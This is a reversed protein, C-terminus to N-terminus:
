PAPVDEGTLKSMVARLHNHGPDAILAQQWVYRAKDQQGAKWLVEGYHSAIEADGSNHWARGLMQLAQTSKGRRYLLWGMSDQIAPNDPSAALATRVMQEARGLQQKHDALTFGLANLLQPDEPRRKLAAEFAGIAERTRGGTELVTARTYQLEADDPYQKDAQDLTSLASTLDGAGALLTARTSAVEVLSQPNQEGFEDILAIASSVDGHRIMLRAASTRASLGLGTDGLLRYSQVASADDGRRAALEAFYLLAIATNNGGSALAGIHREAGDLDGNRLAMTILRQRAGVNTDPALLLEQLEQEADAQRDAADLLDAVLFVDEGALTRRDLQRAGAVAAEHDGLVSQARLVISRAEELSADIGLAREAASRAVQMNQAAFALQAQALLVEATPDPGVLVDNFVRYLATAEAEEGLTAAIALPSQGGAAGSDRWATLAERSEKLDYRKLAVIAAALAAQGNWPELQRWRVIAARATGLQNCGLAIQVARMAVKVETSIMAARQYSESAVRCDGNRAATEGAMLLESEGRSEVATKSPEAAPEAKRPVQACASLALALIVTFARSTHPMM